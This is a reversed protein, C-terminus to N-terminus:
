HTEAWSTGINYEGTLPLSLNYFAGTMAIAEVALRGVEEACEEDVELQVEDHVYAVQTYRGGYGKSALLGHMLVLWRKCIIAGASQLLSNLAAHESRIPVRRNDLGFLFDRNKVLDKAISEKLNKLAPLRKLFMKKLAKGEKSSGQVIEGIKKDGGGFLFTYIFKKSQARTELGAAEQNVTHIDGEVLARGYAGGDHSSMYFALCRLELSSVDIGVLVRPHTPRFLQRCEVGYEATGSPVQALNPNSHTCRSTVAGLTNVRGHIRGEKELKMWAQPGEALQGIRKQLMLYENLLQAAPYELKSLVSEDVKPKEGETWDTPKWDYFDKLRKAIHERSSPNFETFRVRTYPQGETFDGRAKNKFHLTRKPTVEGV